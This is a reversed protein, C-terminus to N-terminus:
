SGVVIFHILMSERKPHASCHRATRFSIHIVGVLYKEESTSWYAIFSELSLKGSITWIPLTVQIDYSFHLKDQSIGNAIGSWKVSISKRM